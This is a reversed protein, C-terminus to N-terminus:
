AIRLASIILGRVQGDPANAPLALTVTGTPTRMARWIRGAHQAYTPDGSGRRMSSLIAEVPVPRPARWTRVAAGLTSVHVVRM